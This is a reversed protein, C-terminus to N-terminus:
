SSKEGRIRLRRYDAFWSGNSFLVPKMQDEISLIMQEYIETPVEEFFVEGFMTIWNRLGAEGDKLETPRNFYAVDRVVFGQRELINCSQAVSPFYWPNNAKNQSYGFRDLADNIGQVIQRINNEGGFEVVLRGGPKLSAYMSKAAKEADKVWHLAANSFIADFEDQYNLERIDRVQFELAPYKQKAEEIMSVSSDVGVVQGALEAIDQTLDGTGCGVDCIIETKLPTLWSILSKGYATNFSHHSDYFQANWTTM